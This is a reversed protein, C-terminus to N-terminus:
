AYVLKAANVLDVLTGATFSPALALAAELQEETLGLAEALDHAALDSMAAYAACEIADFIHTGLLAVLDDVGETLSPDSIHWCASWTAALEFRDSTYVPVLYDITEFLSDSVWPLYRGALDPLDTPSFNVLLEALADAIAPRISDPADIHRDLCARVSGALDLSTVSVSSTITDM